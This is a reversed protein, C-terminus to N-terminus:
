GRIIIRPDSNGEAFGNINSCYISYPVELKELALKAPGDTKWKEQVLAALTERSRLTIKGTGGEPIELLACDVLAPHPFMVTAHTGMATWELVDGMQVEITGPDVKFKENRFIRLKHKMM